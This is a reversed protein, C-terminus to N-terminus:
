SWKLLSQVTWLDSLARIQQIVGETIVTYRERRDVRSAFVFGEAAQARAIVGM